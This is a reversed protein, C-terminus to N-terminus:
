AIEAGAAFSVLLRPRAIGRSFLSALAHVYRTNERRPSVLNGLRIETSVVFPTHNELLASQFAYGWEAQPFIV